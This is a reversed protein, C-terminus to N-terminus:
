KHIWLNACVLKYPRYGSENFINDEECAFLKELISQENLGKFRETFSEWQSKKYMKCTEIPLSKAAFFYSITEGKAALFSFNVWIWIDQYRLCDGIQVLWEYVDM